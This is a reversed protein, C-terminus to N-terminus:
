SVKTNRFRNTATENLKGNQINKSFFTPIDQYVLFFSLASTDNKTKLYQVTRKVSFFIHWHKNTM